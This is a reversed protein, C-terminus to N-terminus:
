RKGGVPKNMVLAMPQFFESFYLGFADANMSGLPIVIPFSTAKMFIETARAEDSERGFKAVIQQYITEPTNGNPKSLVDSPKYGAKESAGSKAAYSIGLPNLQKPIISNQSPVAKVEPLWRVVYYVQGTDSDLRTLAFALGNQIEQTRTTVSLVQGTPQSTVKQLASEAEDHTAFKAGPKNDPFTKFWQFALNETGRPTQRIFADGPKRNIMGAGEVIIEKILM